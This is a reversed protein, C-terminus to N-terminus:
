FLLILLWCLMQILHEANIRASSVSPLELLHSNNAPIASTPRLAIRVTM